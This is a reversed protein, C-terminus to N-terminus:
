LLITDDTGDALLPDTREDHVNIEEDGDTNRQYQDAALTQLLADEVGSRKWVSYAADTTRANSSMSENRASLPEGNRKMAVVEAGLSGQGTEGEAQSVSNNLFNVVQLVDLPSIYGDNNVDFYTREGAGEAEGAVSLLRSGARNLENVLILADQPVVRGDGNVDASMEANHWGGTVTLSLNVFEIANFPVEGRPSLGRLSNGSSNKPSFTLEIPGDGIVNMPFRAVMVQSKADAFGAAARIGLKHVSPNLSSPVDGSWQLDPLDTGFQVAGALEIQNPDYHIQAFAVSIGDTELGSQDQAYVFVEIIDGPQVHDVVDGSSNRAELRYQMVDDRNNINATVTREISTGNGDSVTYTITEIGSFGPAPLYTISQQTPWRTPDRGEDENPDRIEVTGGHSASVQTIRLREGIDPSPSAQELVDLGVVGPKGVQVGPFTDSFAEEWTFWQFSTLNQIAFEDNRPDVWVEISQPSGNADILVVVDLGSFDPRPSYVLDGDIISVTADTRSLANTVPENSLIGDLSLLNGVSDELVSFAANQSLTGTPGEEEVLNTADLTAHQAEVAEGGWSSSNNNLTVDVLVTDATLGGVGYSYIASGIPADNEALLTQRLELRGFNQIAGAFNDSANSVFEADSVDMEGWNAVGGGVGAAFNFLRKYEDNWIATNSLVALNNAVIKGTQENAIGGGRQATNGVLQVSHLEAEGSNFIAGGDLAKGAAIEIDRLLISGANRIGAGNGEIEGALISLGDVELLAGELVDFARDGLQTADIVTQGRGAGVIRVGLGSESIDLDGDVSLDLRYVGAELHIEDAEGNSNAIAIAERLSGVAGDDVVGPFFSALVRRDELNEFGVSRGIRRAKKKRM